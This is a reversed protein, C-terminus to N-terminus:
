YLTGSLYWKGMFIFAPKGDNGQSKKMGRRYSFPLAHM